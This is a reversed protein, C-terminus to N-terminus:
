KILYGGKRTYSFSKSGKNYTRKVQKVAGKMRTNKAAFFGQDGANKFIKKDIEPSRTGIVKKYKNLYKESASVSDRKAQMEVNYRRFNEEGMMKSVRQGSEKKIQKPTNPNIKKDIKTTTVTKPTTKISANYAAADSDKKKLQSVKKNAADTQAKTPKFDPGLNKLGKQYNSLNNTSKEQVSQSSQIPKSTTTVKSELKAGKDPDVSFTTSNNKKKKPDDMMIPSQAMLMADKTKFNTPSYNEKSGMKM